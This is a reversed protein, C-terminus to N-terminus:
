FSLKLIFKIYWRCKKMAAVNTGYRRSEATIYIADNEGGSMCGGDLAQQQLPMEFFREARLQLWNSNYQM